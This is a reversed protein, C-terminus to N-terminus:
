DFVISAQATVVTGTASSAKPRVTYTVSGEGRHTADNVPLFGDEVGGPLDGTAPDISRFAWTVVGTQRNLSASVAVRLPTGNLNTTTVSTAFEQLGAPVEVVTSGFRIAGLEFTSWDLDADLQETIFVEQAPATAKEPDNEFTIAYPLFQEPQLYGP